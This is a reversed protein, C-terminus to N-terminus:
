SLDITTARTFRVQPPRHMNRLRYQLLKKLLTHIRITFESSITTQVVDLRMAYRLVNRTKFVLRRRGM